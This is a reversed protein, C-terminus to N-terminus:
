LLWAKNHVFTRSRYQKALTVRGHQGPCLMSVRSFNQIIVYSMHTRYANWARALYLIDEHYSHKSCLNHDKNGQLLFCKGLIM